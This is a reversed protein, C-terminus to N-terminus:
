QPSDYLSGETEKLGSDGPTNNFPFPKHFGWLSSGEAEKSSLLTVKISISNYGTALNLGLVEWIDFGELLSIIYIPLM